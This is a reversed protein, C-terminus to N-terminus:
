PIRAVYQRQYLKMFVKMRAALLKFAFEKQNGLEIKRL